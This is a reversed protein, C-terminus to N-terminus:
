VIELAVIAFFVKAGHAILGNVLCEVAFQVRETFCILTAIALEARRALRVDFLVRQKNMSRHRSM